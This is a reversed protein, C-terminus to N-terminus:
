ACAGLKEREHIVHKTGREGEPNLYEASGQMNIQFAKSIHSYCYRIESPNVSADSGRGVAGPGAPNLLNKMKCRSVQQLLYFEAPAM